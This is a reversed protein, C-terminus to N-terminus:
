FASAKEISSKSVLVAFPYCAKAAFMDDSM